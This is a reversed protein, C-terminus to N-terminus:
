PILGILTKLVDIPDIGYTIQPCRHSQDWLPDLYVQPIPGMAMKKISIPANECNTGSSNRMCKIPDIRYTVQSCMHSRDWLEKELVQQIM